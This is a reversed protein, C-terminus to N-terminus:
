TKVKLNMNRSIITDPWSVISVPISTIILIDSIPSVGTIIEGYSCMNFISIGLIRYFIHLIWHMQLRNALLHVHKREGMSIELPNSKQRVTRLSLGCSNKWEYQGENDSNAGFCIYNWYIKLSHNEHVHIMPYATQLLSINVAILTMILSGAHLPLTQEIIGRYVTYTTGKHVHYYFSQLIKGSAAHCPKYYESNLWISFQRIYM